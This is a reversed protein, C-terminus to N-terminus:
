LEGCALAGLGPPSILRIANAACLFQFSITEIKTNLLQAQQRQQQQRTCNVVAASAAAAATAM